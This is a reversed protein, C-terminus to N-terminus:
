SNPECPPLPSATGRVKSAVLEAAIVALKRNEHQSQQCLLDFATDPDCGTTAVIVGKAQEIVARTEMARRLGAVEDSLAEVQQGDAGPGAVEVQRPLASSAESAPSSSAPREQLPHHPSAGVLTEARGSGLDKESPAGAWPACM